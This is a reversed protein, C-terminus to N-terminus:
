DRKITGELDVISKSLSKIQGLATDKGCDIYQQIVTFLIDGPTGETGALCNPGSFKDSDNQWVARTQAMECLMKLNQKM